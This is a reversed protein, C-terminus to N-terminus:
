HIEIKTNEVYTNTDKYKFHVVYLYSITTIAKKTWDLWRQRKILKQNM